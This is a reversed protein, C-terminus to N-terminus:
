AEKAANLEIVESEPAQVAVAKLDHVNWLRRVGNGRMAVPVNESRLKQIMANIASWTRGLEEGIEECTAKEIRRRLLYEVEGQTWSQNARGAIHGRIRRKLPIGNKRLRGVMKLIAATSANLKLAIDPVSEEAAWLQMLAKLEATTWRHGKYHITTKM